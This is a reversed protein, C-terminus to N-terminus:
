TSVVDISTLFASQNFKLHASRIIVDLLEDIICHWFLFTKKLLNLQHIPSSILELLTGRM